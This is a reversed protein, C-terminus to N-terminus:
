SQDNHIGSCSIVIIYISHPNRTIYPIIEIVDENFIKLIDDNVEEM